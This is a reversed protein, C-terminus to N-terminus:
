RFQRIRRIFDVSQVRSELIYRLYGLMIRELDQHLKEGIRLQELQAYQSRQMHRLIKLTALPLSVLGALHHAGQPSVVGGGDYSFFQEVPEIDERTAICEFLEPRFGVDDLLRLEYYRIVRLPDEDTCLRSFTTDLLTFLTSTDADDGDYTFRDMLEAAYNAYAGRFLDERIELYPKSMEAQTLIHWTRGRAILVDARTFLEVHGTKKSAPKRAGKAIVDFKGQQPTLLTLLRDAEGHNRRKLVLAPTRFTRPHNSMM